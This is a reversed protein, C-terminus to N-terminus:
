VSLGGEKEGAGGAEALSVTLTDCGNGEISGRPQTRCEVERLMTHHARAGLASRAPPEHSRASATPRSTSISWTCIWLCARLLTECCYCCYCCCCCCYCAVDAPSALHLLLSGRTELGSKRTPRWMCGSTTARSASTRFSCIYEAAHARAPQTM